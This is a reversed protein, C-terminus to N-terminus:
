MDRRVLFIEDRRRVVDIPQGHLKVSKGMVQAAIIPTKYNYQTLDVKAVKINMGMFEKWDAKLNAYNKKIVEPTGEVEIFKAM